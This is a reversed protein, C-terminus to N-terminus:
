CQDATSEIKIHIHMIRIIIAYQKFLNCYWWSFQMKCMVRIGVHM